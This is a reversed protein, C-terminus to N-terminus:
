LTEIRPLNDKLFPSLANMSELRYEAVSDYEEPAILVTHCGASKGAIVDRESDGIMWSNKLDIHHQSAAKFIMGPAPKRDPHDGGHPCYYIDLINLGVKEVAQLLYDHIGRVTEESVIGTSICKQNTVVIARYGREMVVRLSEIFEPLIHFDEVREVYGEGPSENVVGDRDFIVCRSPEQSPRPNDQM